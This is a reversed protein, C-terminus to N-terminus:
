RQEVIEFDTWQLAVGGRNSKRLRDRVTVQLTYAGPVLGAPLGLSGGVALPDSWGDEPRSIAEPEFTVVERGEQLLSLSAELEPPKGLPPVRPNYVLFAYSLRSRPPFRRVALTVEPQRGESDTPQEGLVLGSLALKGNAVDPVEVFQSASGLRGSDPDRVAIRFQYGGPKEVMLDLSYTIDAGTLVKGFGPEIRANHTRTLEGVVRGEADFVVVAFEPATQRAGDPEERFTLAAADLHVLARVASGSKQVHAFFCTLQVPLDTAAFPSALAESLSRPASGLAPPASRGAVGYFGRRSRVRLGARKVRVTLRHYRPRDGELQFTRLEPAYGLLYYGRQDELVRGLAGALDNTDALLLGGTDESLSALGARQELLSQVSGGGSGSADPLLTLLGRPDIAYLVVSSRNAEDIVRNVAALLRSPDRHEPSRGREYLPFGESLIIASKRGPLAALGGVVFRLGGLTGGALLIQRENEARAALGTMAQEFALMAAGGPGGASPTAGQGLGFGAVARGRGALNFRIRDVAARLLRRDTSFQQLTGLGGGTRVIAVLDGAQMEKEVFDSLLKRVRVTSEFSLSLDDVVFAFSRRGARPSPLGAQSLDEGPAGVPAPPDLASPVWACLAIEKQKGDESIEFDEARLDAVHQGDKDTVVADVQVMELSIRVVPVDMEDPEAPVPAAAGVSLLVVRLVMAVSRM